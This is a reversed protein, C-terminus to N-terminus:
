TVVFNIVKGEVYVIKRVTKGDVYKKIKDSRRALQEVYSKVKLKSSKVEMTNRLKGNVQIVITVEDEVLFKPDYTPWPQKHISLQSNLTSFQSNKNEKVKLKGSEVILKQWLEETMHPAFPALLKLFIEAEEKSMFKQKSLFNYYTMLSAIATNYRLSGIDETVKKITKHIM